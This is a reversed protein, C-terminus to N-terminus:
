SHEATLLIVFRAGGEPLNQVLISGRHEDIITKCISLGMGLGNTKTTY